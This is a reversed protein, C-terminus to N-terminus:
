SPHPPLDAPDKQSSPSPTWAKLEKEAKAPSVRVVQLPYPIPLHGFSLSLRLCQLVPQHCRPSQPRGPNGPPFTHEHANTISKHIRTYTYTHTVHEHTQARSDRCESAHTNKWSHRIVDRIHRHMHIDKHTHTHTDLYM